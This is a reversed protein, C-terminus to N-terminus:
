YDHGCVRRRGRRDTSFSGDPDLLESSGEPDALELQSAPLVLTQRDVGDCDLDVALGDVVVSAVDSEGTCRAALAHESVEVSASSIEYLDIVSEVPGIPDGTAPDHVNAFLLPYDIYYGRLREESFTNLFDYSVGAWDRRRTYGSMETSTAPEGDFGRRPVLGFTPDILVWRVTDVDKVEVLTHTDYANPVLSTFALRAPLGVNM